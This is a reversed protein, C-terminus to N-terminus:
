EKDMEESNNKIDLQSNPEKRDGEDKRRSCRIRCCIIVAIAISIAILMEFELTVYDGRDVEAFAMILQLTLNTENQYAMIQESVNYSVNESSGSRTSETISVGEGALTFHLTEEFQKPTTDTEQTLVRGNILSVKGLLFTRMEMPRLSFESYNTDMFPTFDMKELERFVFKSKLMDSRLQNTSLSLESIEQAVVTQNTDLFVSLIHNAYSAPDYFKLHVQDFEKLNHFRVIYEKENYSRISM